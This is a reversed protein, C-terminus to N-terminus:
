VIRRRQKLYKYHDIVELTENSLRDPGKIWIRMTHELTSEGMRNCLRTKILKMSSFTQEVIAMTVMLVILIAALKALNLFSTAITTSSLLASLVQQLSSKKHHLHMLRRFLKWESQTKQTLIVSQHVKKGMLSCMKCLAMGGSIRHEKSFVHGPPIWHESWQITQPNRFRWVSRSVWSDGQSESRSWEIYNLYVMATTISNKWSKRRHREPHWQALLINVINNESLSDSQQLEFPLVSDWVSMKAGKSTDTTSFGDVIKYQEKLNLHVNCRVPKWITSNPWALDPLRSWDGSVRIWGRGRFKIHEEWRAAEWRHYSQLNELLLWAQEKPSM